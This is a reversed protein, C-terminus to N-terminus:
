ECFSVAFEAAERASAAYGDAGIRRHEGPDRDFVAGGVIVRVSPTNKRVASILHGTAELHEPLTVSLAVLCAARERVISVIEGVPVHTGVPFVDFGAQELADSVMMLGISHREAGPTALVVSKGRPEARSLFPRLQAIMAEAAYSVFHETAVGIEGSEWLRGIEYLAPRLVDNHIQVVPVGDHALALVYSFADARRGSRLLALFEVAEATLEIGSPRTAPAFGPRLAESRGLLYDLSVDFGDAIKKLTGEDPFRIAQEYNAVTTQAVGLRNALDVQRLGNSRRLERLRAAFGSEATNKERSIM